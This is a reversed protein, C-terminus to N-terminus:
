RSFFSVCDASLLGVISSLGSVLLYDDRFANSLGERKVLDGISGEEKEHAEVEEEDSLKEGADREAGKGSRDEREWRDLLSMALSNFRLIDWIMRYVRPNLRGRGTAGRRILSARGGLLFSPLLRM